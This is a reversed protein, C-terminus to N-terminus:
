GQQQAITQGSLGTYRRSPEVQLKEGFADVRDQFYDAGAVISYRGDKRFLDAIWSGRGGCGILGLAIKSNAQTGRVSRPKVITFSLATVGAGAIFRRRDIPGRSANMPTELRYDAM